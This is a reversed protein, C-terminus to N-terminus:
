LEYTLKEKTLNFYFDQLEHFYSIVYNVTEDYPFDLLNIYSCDAECVLRYHNERNKFTYIHSLDLLEGQDLIEKTEVFILNTTDLLDKTIPVSEIEDFRYKPTIIGTDIYLNIGDVNWSQVTILEGTAKVKLLNGYQYNNM